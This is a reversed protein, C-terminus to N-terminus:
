HREATGEGAGKITGYHLPKASWGKFSADRTRTETPGEPLVEIAYEDSM